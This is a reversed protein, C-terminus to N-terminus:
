NSVGGAAGTATGLALNVRVGVTYASYDLTAAGGQGDLTVTGLLGSADRVGINADGFKFTDFGAGGRIVSPTTASTTLLAFSDDASGANLTLSEATDYTLDFVRQNSFELISTSSIRYDGGLFINAGNDNLVIADTGAQGHVTVFGIGPLGTA